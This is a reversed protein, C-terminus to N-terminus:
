STSGERRTRLWTLGDPDAEIDAPLDAAGLPLADFRAPVHGGATRWDDALRTAGAAADTGGARAPDFAILVLGRTAGPGSERGGVAVGALIEVLLGTLSGVLGAPLVAHLAAADVTPSGHADVAVGDPLDAGAARAERVAAVTLPSTAYDVVLPAVDARPVAVAIPNTGIAPKTAGWPAVFPGSQAAILATAGEAALTRAALGLIGTGGAGRIGVVAVGHSAVQARARGVATALALIGPTGHADISMVPGDVPAAAAATVGDLRALERALMRIGFEPLDLLEAQVLWLAALAIDEDSARPAADKLTVSLAGVLEQTSVNM